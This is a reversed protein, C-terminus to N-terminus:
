FLSLMTQMLSLAAQATSDGTSTESRGIEIQGPAGTHIEGPINIQGPAPTHIEGPASQPAPPPPAAPTDITGGFAPITLAFAFVLAVCLRRLTKM